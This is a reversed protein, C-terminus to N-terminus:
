EVESIIYKPDRPVLREHKCDVILDLAEPVFAGMLVNKRRPEVLADFVSERNRYRVRVYGVVDRLATRHDAYRVRSKGTVKLGLENALSGPLVLSIAGSDVVAEATVHRVADPALVGAQALVRDDNNTLELEVKFRAMKGDKPFRCVVADENLRNM